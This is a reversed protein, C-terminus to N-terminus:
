DSRIRTRKQWSVENRLYLPELNPLGAATSLDLVGSDLQRDVLSVIASAMPKFESDRHTFGAPLHGLGWGHGLLVAPRDNGQLTNIMAEPASVQAPFVPKFVDGNYGAWYVEGMRADLAVVILSNGSQASDAGACWQQCMVDLTSVGVLPKGCGYALGQAIGLGIRIGTFSGPGRTVAIADLAELGVDAERLLKEVMPLLVRSHSRPEHCVEERSNGNIRLAVSCIETSADITLLNVPM